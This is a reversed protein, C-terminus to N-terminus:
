ELEFEKCFEADVPPEGDDGLADLPWRSQGRDPWEHACRQERKVYFFCHRCSSRLAFREAEDVLTRTLPFRM